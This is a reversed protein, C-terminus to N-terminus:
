IYTGSRTCLERYGGDKWPKNSNQSWSNQDRSLWHPKCWCCHGFCAVFDWKKKNLYYTINFNENRISFLFPAINWYFYTNVKLGWLYMPTSINSKISSMSFKFKTLQRKEVCKCYNYKWQDMTSKIWEMVVILNCNQLKCINWFFYLFM